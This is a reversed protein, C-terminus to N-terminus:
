DVYKIAAAECFTNSSVQNTTGSVADGLLSAETTTTSTNSSESYFALSVVADVDGFKAKAADLLMARVSALDKGTTVINDMDVVVYGVVQVKRGEVQVDDNMNAVYPVSLTSIKQQNVSGISCGCAFATAMVLSTFKFLKM